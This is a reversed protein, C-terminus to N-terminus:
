ARRCEEPRGMRLDAFNLVRLRDLEVIGVLPLYSDCWRFPFRHCPRVLTFLFFERAGTPLSTYKDEITGPM